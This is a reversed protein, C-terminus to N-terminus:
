KSPNYECSAIAYQGRGVNHDVLKGDLRIACAVRKSSSVSNQASIQYVIADGASKITKKWPIKAETDQTTKTGGDTYTLSAKPTGRVTYTITHAGDKEGTTTAACGATLMIVTLTVLSKFM